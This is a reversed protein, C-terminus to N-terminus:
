TGFQTDLLRRWPGAAERPDTGGGVSVAADGHCSRYATRRLLLMGSAECQDVLGSAMLEALVRHPSLERSTALVLQIFGPRAESTLPLLAPELSDDAFRAESLWRLVVRRAPPSLLNESLETLRWRPRGDLVLLSM